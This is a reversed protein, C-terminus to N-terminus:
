CSSKSFELEKKMSENFTPSLVVQRLAWIRDTDNRNIRLLKRNKYEEVLNWLLVRFFEKNKKWSLGNKM